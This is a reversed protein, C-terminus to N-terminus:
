NLAEALEPTPAALRRSVPSGPQAPTEALQANVSGEVLVFFCTAPEGERVVTGPEWLEMSGHECLWTLQEDTLKEFLFLSRLEEVDCPLNKTPM